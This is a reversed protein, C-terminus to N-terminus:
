IIQTLRNSDSSNSKSVVSKDRTSSDNLKEQKLKNIEEFNMESLQMFIKSMESYIKSVSKIINLKSPHGIIWQPYTILIINTVNIVESMAEAVPLSLKDQSTRNLILEYLKDLIKIIYVNKDEIIEPWKLAKRIMEFTTTILEWIGKNEKDIYENDLIRDLYSFDFIKKYYFVDNLKIL